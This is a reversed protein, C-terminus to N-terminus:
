CGRYGLVRNNFPSPTKCTRCSERNRAKHAKGSQSSLDSAVLLDCGKKAILIMGVDSALM